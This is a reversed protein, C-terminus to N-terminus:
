NNRDRQFTHLKTGLINRLFYAVVLISTLCLARTVTTVFHQFSNFQLSIVTTNNLKIVSLARRLAFMTMNKM